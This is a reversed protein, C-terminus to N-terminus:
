KFGEMEEFNWDCPTDQTIGCSVGILFPCNTCEGEKKCFYKISNLTRFFNHIKKLECEHEYCEQKTTFRRGDNAEYYTVMIEKM